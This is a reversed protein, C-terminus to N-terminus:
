LMKNFHKLLLYRYVNILVLFIVFGSLEGMLSSFVTIHERVSLAHTVLFVVPYGILISIIMAVPTYLSIKRALQKASFEKEKKEDYVRAAFWSVFGGIMSGAVTFTSIVNPRSMILSGIVGFLPAGVLAGIEGILIEKNFDVARSSLAM